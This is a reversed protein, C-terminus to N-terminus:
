RASAPEQVQAEVLQGGQGRPNSGAAAERREVECEVRERRQRRHEAAQHPQNLEVQVVRTLPPRCKYM